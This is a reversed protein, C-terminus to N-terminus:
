SEDLRYYVPHDLYLGVAKRTLWERWLLGLREECFRYLVAVVTSAGFVTVYMIAQWVFEFMKRDAVATMFDRGVYSSVVNFGNIAFLFLLLLASLVRAKWGVESTVFARVVRVFRLWSLRNLPIENPDTM